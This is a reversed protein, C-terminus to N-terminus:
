SPNIVPDDDGNEATAPAAPTVATADAVTIGEPVRRHMGNVRISVTNDLLRDRTPYYTRTMYLRAM